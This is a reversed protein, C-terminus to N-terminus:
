FYFRVHRWLAEMFLVWLFPNGKVNVCASQSYVSLVIKDVSVNWHLVTILQFLKRCCINFAFRIWSTLVVAESNCLALNMWCDDSNLAASLMCLKEVVPKLCKMVLWQCLFLEEAFDLDCVKALLINICTLWMVGLCLDSCLVAKSWFGWSALSM